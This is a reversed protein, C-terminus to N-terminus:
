LNKTGCSMNCTGTNEKQKGKKRKKPQNQNPPANSESKPDFTSGAGIVNIEKIKRYRIYMFMNKKKLDKM